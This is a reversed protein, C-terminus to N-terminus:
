SRERKCRIRDGWTCSVEHCVKVVDYYSVRGSIMAARAAKTAQARTAYGKRLPVGKKIDAANGMVYYTCRAM